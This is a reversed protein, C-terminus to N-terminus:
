PHTLTSEYGGPSSFSPHNIRLCPPWASPHIARKNLLHLLETTILLKQSWCYISIFHQIWVHKNGSDIALFPSLAFRLWGWEAFGISRCPLQRWICNWRNDARYAFYAHVGTCMRTHTNRCRWHSNDAWHRMCSMEHAQRRSFCLMLTPRCNGWNMKLSCHCHLFPRM